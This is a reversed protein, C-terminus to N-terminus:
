KLVEAAPERNVEKLTRIQKLMARVRPNLEVHIHELAPLTALPSLDLKPSVPGQMSLEKLRPLGTLPKLGKPDAPADILLTHLTEIGTLPSLDRVGTGAIWLTHLSKSGALPAITTIGRCGSCYLAALGAKGQFAKLDSVASGVMWIHSLDPAGALASVDRLNPCQDLQLYKLPHGKLAKLDTLTRDGWAEFREVRTGDFLLKMRKPNMLDGNSVFLRFPKGKLRDVQKPDAGVPLALVELPMDYLVRIDGARTGSAWFEKLAMGRLPTLDTVALSAMWLSTLPLGALPSLDAIKSPKGAECVFELRQLSHFVQLPGIDVLYSAPVVVERVARDQIKAALKQGRFEPNLEGLKAEVAAVQDEAKLRVVRARWPGLDITRDLEKKPRPKQAAAPGPGGAVTLLGVLWWGAVVIRM